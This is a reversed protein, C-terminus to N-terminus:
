RDPVAFMFTQTVWTAVRCGGISAPEFSSNILFNVVPKVFDRYHGSRLDISSPAVTGNRLITYTLVLTDGVGAREANLPYKPGNRKQTWGASKFPLRYRPITVQFLQRARAVTDAHDEPGIFIELPISESSTFFPILREKSLQLLISRVSDSFVPTQSLDVVSIDSLTGDSHATAYVTSGIVLVGSACTKQATDCSDWGRMVSLPLSSPLKLRSRFEQAVLGEFDKPLRTRKNQPKVSMTVVAAISDSTRLTDLCAATDRKDGPATSTVAGPSGPQPKGGSAVLTFFLSLSIIELTKMTTGSFRIEAENQNGRPL